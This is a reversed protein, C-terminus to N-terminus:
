AARAPSRMWSHNFLAQGVDRPEVGAAGLAAWMTVQASTIVPKQQSRELQPILDFTELATCSIFLVDADPRDAALALETLEDITMDSLGAPTKPEHNVLSRVDFGAETLFEGLRDTTGKDYPTAVAVKHAGLAALADLLSGSTTLAVKAGAEEMTQRIRRENALGQAFSGSTCAFTTVAPDIIVFNRTAQVLEADNPIWTVDEHDRMTDLPTRTFHLTTGAPAWRWFDADDANDPTFVIAIRTM